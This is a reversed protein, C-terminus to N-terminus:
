PTKPPRIDSIQDCEVGGGMGVNAFVILMDTFSYVHFYKYISPPPNYKIGTVEEQIRLLLM